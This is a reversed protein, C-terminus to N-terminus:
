EVLEGTSEGQFNFAGAGIEKLSAPKEVESLGTCLVFADPGVSELGKPLTLSTLSSCFAFSGYGISQLASPLRLEKLATCAGFAYEGISAVGEPISVSECNVCNWFSYSGIHTVGEAIEVREVLPALCGWPAATAGTATYDELRSVTLVGKQLTWDTDSWHLEGTATGRTEVACQAKLASECRSGAPVTATLAECSLFANEGLSLLGEDVAVSQLSICNAFCGSGIEALTSPFTLSTLGCGSFANADIRMLGEPLDLKTLLGCDAFCFEAIYRLSSPLTVEELNCCAAFAYKGLSRVGENVVLKKVSFSKGAQDWPATFLEYDAMNGEGSITLTDGSFVWGIVESVTEVVTTGAPVEVVATEPYPSESQPEQVIVPEDKGCACLSLLLTFVLLLSLKKMTIGKSLFYPAAVDAVAGTYLSFTFM